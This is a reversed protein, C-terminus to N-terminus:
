SFNGENLEAVMGGHSNRTVRGSGVGSGKGSLDAAVTDLGCAPSHFVWCHREGTGLARHGGPGARGQGGTIGPLQPRMLCEM